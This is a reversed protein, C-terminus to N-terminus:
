VAISKIQENPGPVYDGFVVKRVEWIGFQDNHKVLNAGTRMPTFGLVRKAGFIAMADGISWAKCTILVKTNKHRKVTTKESFRTENAPVWYQVGDISTANVLKNGSAVVRGILVRGKQNLCYIREQKQM